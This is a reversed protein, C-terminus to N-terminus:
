LKQLSSVLYVEQGDAAGKGSLTARVREGDGSLGALQAGTVQLDINREADNDGDDGKIALSAITTETPAISGTDSAEGLDFFIEGEVTAPLSALDTAAGADAGQDGCAALSLALCASLLLYRM